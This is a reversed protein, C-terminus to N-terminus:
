FLARLIWEKQGRIRGKVGVNGKGEWVTRERGRGGGGLDWRKKQDTSKKQIPQAM